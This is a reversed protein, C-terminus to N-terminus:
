RSSPVTRRGTRAGACASPRLGPDVPRPPPPESRQTPRRDEPDDDRGEAAARHHVGKARRVSGRERHARANGEEGGDAGCPPPSEHGSAELRPEGHRRRDGGAIAGLEEVHGKGAPHEAVEPTAHVMAAPHVVHPAAEARDGPLPGGALDDEDHEGHRHEEHGAGERCRADAAWRPREEGDRSQSDPDRQAGPTSTSPMAPRTPRTTVASPRASSPGVADPPIASADSATTPPCTAVNTMAARATPTPSGTTSSRGM